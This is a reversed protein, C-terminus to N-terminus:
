NLEAIFQQMRETLLGDKMNILDAQSVWKYAITEGQQLTISDKACDTICLFEVYISHNANDVVCGVQTLNSSDIGTEELLERKACELPKEGLLASGGATAEWMGGYAKRLDRQMLLYTGDTHKVLIDCVLHFVGDPIDQGRVLTMNEIKNLNADYGDWIEM